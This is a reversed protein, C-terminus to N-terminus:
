RRLEDRHQDCWDTGPRVREACGNVGCYELDIRYQNSIAPCM